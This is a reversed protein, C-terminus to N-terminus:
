ISDPILPFDLDTRSNTDEMAAEKCSDVIDMLKKSTRRTKRRKNRRDTMYDGDALALVRTPVKANSIEDQCPNDKTQNDVSQALSANTSNRRRPTEHSEASSPSRGSSPCWDSNACKRKTPVSTSDVYAGRPQSTNDRIWVPQSEGANTNAVFNGLSGLRKLKSGTRTMTCSSSRRRSGLSNMSGPTAGFSHFSGSLISMKRIRNEREQRLEVFSPHADLGMKTKFNTRSLLDMVEVDLEQLAAKNVISNNDHAELWYTTLEGKGKMEVKGREAVEFLGAHQLKLETRTTASCHIHGPLGSSEHRATTNVTDGFVCFRPNLTGVVGSVAPGSNVGIRLEIPAGDM